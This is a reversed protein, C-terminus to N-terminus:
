TKRASGAQIDCDDGVVERVRSIAAEESSAELVATMRPEVSMGDDLSGPVFSLIALTEIGARELADKTLEPTDSVVTVNFARM